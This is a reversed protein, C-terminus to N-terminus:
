ESVTQIEISLEIKNNDIEKVKFPIKMDELTSKIIFLGHTTRKMIENREDSEFDSIMKKITQSSQAHDNIFTIILMDKLLSFGCEIYTIKYKAMNNLWDSLFLEFGEENLIGYPKKNQFDGVVKLKCTPIFHNLNNKLIIYIREVKIKNLSSYVFPNSSKELMDTARDTINKLELKARSAEKFFVESFQGHKDDNLKDVNDLLQLLNSLPGLRNRIFHMTKNARNVYQSRESLRMTEENKLEVMQKENLLIKSIKNLSPTIIRFVGILLYYLPISEKTVFIYSYEYNEVKTYIIANNNKNKREVFLPENILQKAARLRSLIDSNAFKFSWVFTSGNVVSITGSNELSVICIIQEILDKKIRKNIIRIIRRYIRHPNRIYEKRVYYNEVEENLEDRFRQIKGRLSTYWNIVFLFCVPITIELFVETLTLQRKWTLQL